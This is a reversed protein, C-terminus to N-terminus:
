EIPFTAKVGEELIELGEEFLFPKNWDAPLTSGILGLAAEYTGFLVGGEVAAKGYRITERTRVERVSLSQQGASPPTASANEHSHNEWTWSEALDQVLKGAVAATTGFVFFLANHDTGDWEVTRSIWDAHV